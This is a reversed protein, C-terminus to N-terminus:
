PAMWRTLFRESCCSAELSVKQKRWLNPNSVPVHLDIERSWGDQSDCTRSIRTDAAYIAVALVILDMALEPPHLGLRKMESFLHKHTVRDSAPLSNNIFPLITAVHIDRPITVKPNTYEGLCIIIAHRRM